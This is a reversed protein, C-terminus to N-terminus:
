APVFKEDIMDVIAKALHRTAAPTVRYTVQRGNKEATVLGASRMIKLHTSMLNKDIEMERAIEGQLMGDSRTLLLEFVRWRTSQGLASLITLEKEEM